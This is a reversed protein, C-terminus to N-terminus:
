RRSKKRRPRRPRPPVPRVVRSIEAGHEDDLHKEFVTMASGGVVNLVVTACWPCAYREVVTATSM